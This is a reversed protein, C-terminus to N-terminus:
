CHHHAASQYTQPAPQDQWYHHHAASQYTQPAPQDQWYHHAASHHAQLVLLGLWCRHHVNRHHHAQPGPSCHHRAAPLYARLAPQDRWSRPHDPRADPWHAWQREPSCCRLPCAQRYGWLRHTGLLHELHDAAQRVDPPRAWPRREPRASVPAAPSADPCCAWPCDVEAQGALGDARLRVSAPCGVPGRGPGVLSLDAQFATGLVPNRGALCHGAGAHPRSRVSSRGLSRSRDAALGVGLVLRGLVGRLRM